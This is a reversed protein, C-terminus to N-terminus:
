CGRVSAHGCVQGQRRAEGASARIKRAHELRRARDGQGELGAELDVGEREGTRHRIGGAEGQAVGPQGAWRRPQPEDYALIRAGRALGLHGREEM